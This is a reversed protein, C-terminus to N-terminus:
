PILPQIPSLLAVPHSQLLQALQLAQVLRDRARDGLGRLLSDAALQQVHPQFANSAESDSGGTLLDALTRPAPMVRVDFHNPDLGARTAACTLADETGGIDDVLGEAQAQGALFIRGQAVQEIDKIKAARTTLVRRKFQDYTQRMWRTVLTRQEDTFPTDSSYLDANRGKSFEGTSLGLKAYLDKLVFKGGVVGISGVIATPDAFIEDGASALYYGGSAAMGGVSIILPKKSALHRAAQWMVESAMASGGPSNIRLVVAKISDDRAAARLVRRMPQSSIGNSGGFLSGQEEGDAIVGSAYILAVAPGTSADSKKALMSFLAFPSSFDVKQRDKNGYDFVLEIEHQLVDSLLPRLGDQDVLHDVLGKEKAADGSEMTDDILQTVTEPSLKRYQSIGAVIQDYLHDTLSRLEGKLQESPAVNTYPEKAGKFDGIQVYDAQVGLKDFLGKYFMTSFGVGPIMIEGGSMMCIDTAGTAVTYTATDYGDAYVFTKKGAQGIAALANRLEEADALSIPGDGLNILVAKISSDDKAQHLRALLSQLTDGGRNGFLALGEPKEIVGGSLDFYAVKSASESKARAAMMQEALEKPTAFHKAPQTTSEAAMQTTAAVGLPTFLSLSIVACTMGTFLTRTRM